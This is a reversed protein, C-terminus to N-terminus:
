SAARATPFGPAHRGSWPMARELQRSVALVTADENVRGAIQVGIPLGEASVGAPLSAAPQGTVNYLATFAGLTAAEAFADGPALGKWLGIKPPPVAVTPTVWLDADGFWGLLRAVLERQRQTVDEDRLTKGAEHLWRTVPQLVSTTLVPVAGILRQWLPLFEELTAQPPSGEEVRHGLSELAATVRGVAAAVDPTTKALPSELTVRVRLARPESRCLELFPRDPPPAWHPKGVTIGALVDLFAAADEVNRALPGCTPLADRDPRGLVDAVRGRSPKLGYLHCFSSPIRISGAGDSGHALPILGGAVAAGSGGSSGGPTRSLDWPNRAPPHIDTETVPMAGLESTALKGLIVFGGLRVQKASRDDVPSLFYRYARSGARTLTGRV